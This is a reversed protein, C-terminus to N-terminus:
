HKVIANGIDGQKGKRQAAVSVKSPQLAKSKQIAFGVMIDKGVALCFSNFSWLKAGVLHSSGSKCSKRKGGGKKTERM